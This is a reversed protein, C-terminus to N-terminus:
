KSITSIKGFLASTFDGQNKYIEKLNELYSTKQKSYKTKNLGNLLNYAPLSYEKGNKDDNERFPPIKVKKDSDQILREFSGSGDSLGGFFIGAPLGYKNIVLSGSAGGDLGSKDIISARGFVQIWDGNQRRSIFGADTLNLEDKYNNSILYYRDKKENKTENTLGFMNNQSWTPQSLQYKQGNEHNEFTPRLVPYGAVYFKKMDENKYNLKFKDKEDSVVSDPDPNMFPLKSDNNYYNFTSVLILSKDVSKIAKLIWEKLEPYNELAKKNVKLNLVAFDKFGHIKQERLDPLGGKNNLEWLKKTKDKFYPEYESDVEPKFTDTGLFVIKPTEYLNETAFYSNIKVPGQTFYLSPQTNSYYTVGPNNASQIKQVGYPMINNSKGLLFGSTEINATSSYDFLGEKKNDIKNHLSVAVHVNTAIFLNYFDSKDNKEYDLLWGTGTSPVDISIPKSEPVNPDAPHISPNLIGISFTRDHLSQYADYDTLEPSLAKSNADPKFGPIEVEFESSFQGKTFKYKAKVYGKKDSKSVGLLEVKVDNLYLFRADLDYYEKLNEKKVKEVEISSTKRLNSKSDIKFFDSRLAYYSKYTEIMKKFSADDLKVKELNQYKLKESHIENSSNLIYNVNFDLTGNEDNPVLKDFYMYKVKQEKIVLNYYFESFRILDQPLILSPLINGDSFKLEKNNEKAIERKSEVLQIIADENTSSTSTNPKDTTNTVPKNGEDKPKNNTNTTSKEKERTSPSCAIAALSLVSFSTVTLIGLLLKRKLKM